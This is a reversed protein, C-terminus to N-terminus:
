HPGHQLNFMPELDSFTSSWQELKNGILSASNKACENATNGTKM